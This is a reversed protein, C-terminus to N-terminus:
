PLLNPDDLEKEWETSFEHLDTEIQEFSLELDPRAFLGLASPLDELEGALLRRMYEILISERTVPESPQGAGARQIQHLLTTRDAPKLQGILRIVDEITATHEM